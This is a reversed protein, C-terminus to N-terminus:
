KKEKEVEVCAVKSGFGQRAQKAGLDSVTTNWLQHVACREHVARDRTSKQRLPHDQQLRVVAPVKVQHKGEREAVRWECFGFGTLGMMANERLNIARFQKAVGKDSDELM